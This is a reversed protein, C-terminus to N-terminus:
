LGWVRKVLNAHKSTTVSHNYAGENLAKFGTSLNCIAIVVGYSWVEYFGTYMGLRDTSRKGVLNGASFDFCQLIQSEAQKITIKEM